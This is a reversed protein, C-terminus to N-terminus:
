AVEESSSCVSVLNRGLTKSEYLAIDACKYSRTRDALLDTVGASITVSLDPAIEVAVRLRNLAMEAEALSTHPLIVAFEEGGIRAVFDTDRLTDQLIVGVRKIVRDGEDHGQQDNVRKFHDIDLLALCTTQRPYRDVLKAYKSLESEFKRRNWLQTLEDKESLIRLREELKKRETIDVLSSIYYSVRGSKSLVSQIRLIATVEEDSNPKSFLVEGQWYHDRAVHEFIELMLELQKDGLLKALTNKSTVSSHALGTLQVFEDNVMITRHNRDSIIVASMGSLAARALQSEISRKRYHMVLWTAPVVFALMLLVVLIAQQVLESVDRKTLAEIQEPGMQIVLYLKQHPTLSIGNYVVLTGNELLHGSPQEKMASWATPLEKALNYHQRSEILDGFLKSQNGSALYFGNEGILEPRFIEDPSYNLRSALYWVDINVVLYGYKVGDVFVPTFLRLTPQYPVSINGGERQLDIESAGVQNEKLQSAFQFYDRLSVNYLTEAVEVQENGQYYNIQVQENGQLDVYRIQTYWRQNLAVSRWVEEVVRKNENSPDQVYDYLNRSHSLLEIISLFQSRFSLYERESYELQHAAQRATQDIVQDKLQHFKQLYYTTVIVTFTLMTALLYSFVYKRRM